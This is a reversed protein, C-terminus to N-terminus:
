VGAGGKEDVRHFGVSIPYSVDLVGAQLHNWLCGLGLGPLHLLGSAMSAPSPPPICRDKLGAESGDKAVRM